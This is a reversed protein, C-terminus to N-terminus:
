AAVEKQLTEIENNIKTKLNEIRTVIQDGVEYYGKIKEVAAIVTTHDRNCDKGTEVLSQKLHNSMLFMYVHRAEVREQERSKSLIQLWNVGFEQCVFDQTKSKIIQRANLSSNINDKIIVTIEAGTVARIKKSAQYLINQVVPLENINIWKSM